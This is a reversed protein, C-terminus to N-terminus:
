ASVRVRPPSVIVKVSRWRGSPAIVAANSRAPRSISASRSGTGSAACM